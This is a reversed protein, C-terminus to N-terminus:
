EVILKGVMGNARHAGVSCYYEFTGKKDAVFEITESQGAALQKTKGGFEDIVWDHFGEKNTYVVKVTDGQKVKMEKVSFFFPEGVVEFTKVESKTTSPSVSDTATKDDSLAETPSEITKDKVIVSDDSKKQSNIVFFAGGALLVLVLVGILVKNMHGLDLM